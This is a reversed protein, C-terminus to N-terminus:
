AFDAFSEGHQRNWDVAAVFPRIDVSPFPWRKAAAHAKLTAACDRSLDYIPLVQGENGDDRASRPIEKVMTTAQSGESREPHRPAAGPAQPRSLYDCVRRLAAADGCALAADLLFVDHASVIDGDAAAVVQRAVAEVDCAVGREEYRAARNAVMEWVGTRLVAFRGKEGLLAALRWAGESVILKHGLDEFDHTAALFYDHAFDDHQWRRALWREAALRDDFSEDGELPPPDMLPPESWPQRANAAYIACEVLMEDYRGGLEERLEYAAACALLAHKGHQSPAYALVAFRAVSLFLDHGHLDRSAERAGAADRELLADYLPNL